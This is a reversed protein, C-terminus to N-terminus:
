PNASGRTTLVSNPDLLIIGPYRAFDATNFTIIQTLGHVNMAAVIRADHAVKGKCDYAVILRQWEDLLSPPDLHLCFAKKIAALEVKAEAVALGLGNNAIPRTAVTWFEYLNQPVLCLMHGAAELHQVARLATEHLAHTPQAIRTILNTDLQIKM